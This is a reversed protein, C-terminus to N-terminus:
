LHGIPAMLQLRRIPALAQGMDHPYRTFPAASAQCTEPLPGASTPRSEPLPEACPPWHKLVLGYSTQEGPIFFSHSLKRLIGSSVGTEGFLELSYIWKNRYITENSNIQHVSNFVNVFFIRM